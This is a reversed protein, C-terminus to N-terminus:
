GATSIIMRLGLFSNDTSSNARACVCVCDHLRGNRDFDTNVHFNAGVAATGSNACPNEGHYLGELTGVV